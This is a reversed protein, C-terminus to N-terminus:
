VNRMKKLFLFFFFCATPNDKQSTFTIRFNQLKVIDGNFLAWKNLKFSQQWRNTCFDSENCPKAM